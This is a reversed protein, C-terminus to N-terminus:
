IEKKESSLDNINKLIVMSASDGYIDSYITVPGDFLSIGYIRLRDEIQRKQTISIRHDLDASIVVGIKKGNEGTISREIIRM